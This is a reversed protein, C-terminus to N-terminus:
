CAGALNNTEKVNVIPHIDVDHLEKKMWYGFNLKLNMFVHLLNQKKNKKNENLSNFVILMWCNITQSLSNVCMQRRDEFIENTYCCCCNLNFRDGVVGGVVFVNKSRACLWFSYFAIADYVVVVTRSWQVVTKLIQIIYARSSLINNSM